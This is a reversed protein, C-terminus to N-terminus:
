FSYFFQLSWINQAPTSCGSVSLNRGGVGSLILLVVRNSFDTSESTFVLISCWYSFIYLCIFIYAVMKPHTRFDSDSVLHMATSVFGTFLNTLVVFSFRISFEIDTDERKTEVYCIAERQGTLATSETKM